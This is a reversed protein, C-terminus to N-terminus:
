GAKSPQPLDRGCHKCAKAEYLILEACYPCKKMIEAKRQYQLAPQKEKAKKVLQNAFKQARFLRDITKKDIDGSILREMVDEPLEGRLANNIVTEKLHEHLNLFHQADNKRPDLFIVHDSGCNECYEVWRKYKTKCGFCIVDDVKGFFQDFLLAAKFLGILSYM